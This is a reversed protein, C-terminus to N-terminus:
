DRTWSCSCSAYHKRSHSSFSWGPPFDKERAVMLKTEANLPERKPLYVLYPWWPFWFGLGTAASNDWILLASLALHAKRIVKKEEESLHINTCSWWRTNMVVGRYHTTSLVPQYRDNRCRASLDPWLASQFILVVRPRHTQTHLLNKSRKKPVGFLDAM